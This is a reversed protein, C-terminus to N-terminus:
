ITRLEDRVRMLIRGLHNYGSGRSVGWFQDGWGNVEILQRDGTALLKRRLHSHATFKQRVLDLMIALKVDSWDSRLDIEAGVRKALHSFPL